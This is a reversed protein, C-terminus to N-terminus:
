LPWAARAGRETCVDVTCIIARQLACACPAGTCLCWPHQHVDRNQPCAEAASSRGAANPMTSLSSRPVCRTNYVGEGRCWGGRLIRHREATCLYVLPRRHMSVMPTQAGKQERPVASSREAANPITSLTPEEACLGHQVAAGGGMGARCLPRATLIGSPTCVIGRHVITKQPFTSTLWRTSLRLHVRRHLRRQQSVCPKQPVIQVVGGVDWREYTYMISRQPLPSM